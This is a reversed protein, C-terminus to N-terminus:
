SVKPVGLLRADNVIGVIYCQFYLVMNRSSIELYISSLSIKLGM